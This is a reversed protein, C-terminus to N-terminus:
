FMKQCFTLKDHRTKQRNKDKKRDKVRNHEPTSQIQKREKGKKNLITYGLLEMRTKAEM